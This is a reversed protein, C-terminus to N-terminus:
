DDLVSARTLEARNVVTCSHSAAVLRRGEEPRELAIMSLDEVLETGLSSLVYVDAWAIARALQRAALIDTDKEHGRLAALGNRPDDARIM